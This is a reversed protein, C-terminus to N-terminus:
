LTVIIGSFVLGNVLYTHIREHVRREPLLCEFEAEGDGRRRGEGGSRGGESQEDAPM